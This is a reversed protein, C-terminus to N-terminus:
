VIETVGTAYPYDVEKIIRVEKVLVAVQYVLKGLSTPTKLM